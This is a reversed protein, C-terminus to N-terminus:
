YFSQKKGADNEHKRKELETLYADLYDRPPQDFKVTRKHEDVEQILFTCHFMEENIAYLHPFM